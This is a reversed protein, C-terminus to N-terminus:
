GGTVPPFFAVEDGPSIAAVRNVISHNVAVLVQSSDNLLQWQEGCEAVLQDILSQVDQVGAALELQERESQLAEKLSAFYLVSIQNEM